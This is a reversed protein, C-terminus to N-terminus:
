SAENGMYAAFDTPSLSKSFYYGQGYDCGAEVLLACQQESEIGEAIVEIGLSHAMVVIAKCLVRDEKSHELNAVFSQDIKLYDINFKRLYALSSYGTGFDDLAVQVGKKRYAQLEQEVEGSADLLLSETIEVVIANKRGSKKPLDDMWASYQVDTNMFQVPSQNVAIQFRKDFVNRWAKCQKLSERFVWNGIENILRTDEAVPIFEAPSVLGKEPHRWRLLAEAKYIENSGLAVIPQYEIFLQQDELAVRLDNALRLRAVAEEQMKSTFYTFCNGGKSKSAYMAQDVNKFLGSIGSADDPCVTIGISATVFAKEHKLLFPEAMTRLVKQAIIEIVKLRATEIGTVLVVFEDGGLRAVIDHTYTSATLRESAQQLLVDGQDHGLTDNIEKFGDLDLFLLALKTGMRQTNNIERELRSYLMRRNPLGTLHDFNAHQWVQEETEKLQSIDTHTGVMRLPDDQDNRAVVMGRSLIWKWSGDKCKLRYEISYHEDEGRLYANMVEVTHQRDDPHLLGEWERETGELDESGFGFIEQWRKSYEIQDKEVDWDWVGVGSGELAFQWREDSLKLQENVEELQDTTRLRAVLLFLISTLAATMLLGLLGVKNAYNYDLSAEFAPLSQASLRWQQGYLGISRHASFVGQHDTMNNRYLLAQEGSHLRKHLQYSIHTRPAQTFVLESIATLDVNAFVWGDTEQLVRNHKLHADDGQEPNLFVPIIMSFSSAEEQTAFGFPESILAINHMVATEMDKKLQQNEFSNAILHHQPARKRGAIYIIPAHLSQQDLKLIAKQHATALERYSALKAPDVLKAFGVQNLGATHEAHLIDYAFLDFEEKTVLESADFFSRVGYLTQEYVTVHQALENAADYVQERFAAEKELFTTARASQWIFYTAPLTIFLFFWPLLEYWKAKNYGMM